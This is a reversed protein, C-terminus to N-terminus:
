KTEPESENDSLYANVTGDTSVCKGNANDYIFYRGYNYEVINKSEAKSPNSLMERLGVDTLTGNKYNAIIKNVCEEVNTETEFSFMVYDSVTGDGNPKTIKGFKVGSKEAISVYSNEEDKSFVKYWCRYETTASVKVNDSVDRYKYTSMDKPEDYDCVDTAYEVYNLNYYLWPYKASAFRLKYSKDVEFTPFDVVDGKEFDNIISNIESSNKINALAIIHTQEYCLLMSDSEMEVLTPPKEGIACILNGDSTSLWKEPAAGQIEYFEYEINSGKLKAYEKGIAVPVYVFPTMQYTVGNQSCYYNGDKIKISKGCSSLNFASALVAVLLFISFLKKM